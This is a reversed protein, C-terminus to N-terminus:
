ADLKSICIGQKKNCVSLRDQNKDSIRFLLRSCSVTRVPGKWFLKYDKGSNFIVYSLGGGGKKKLCVAFHIDQKM